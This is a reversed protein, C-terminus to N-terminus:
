QIADGDPHIRTMGGSSDFQVVVDSEFDIQTVNSKGYCRGERLMVRGTVDCKAYCRENRLMARGTVDSNLYRRGEVYCREKRWM